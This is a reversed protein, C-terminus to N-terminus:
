QQAVALSAYYGVFQVVSVMSNLADSVYSCSNGAELYINTIQRQDGDSDGETKNNICHAYLNAINSLEENMIAAMKSLSIGTRSADRKVEKNTLLLCEAGKHFLNICEATMHALTKIAVTHVELSSCNSEDNSSQECNKIWSHADNYVEEIRQEMGELNLEKLLEALVKMFDQDNGPPMESSFSEKVKEMSDYLLEESRTKLLSQTKFESENSLIELAELHAHGQFEELLNNYNFHEPEPKSTILETQTEKPQVEPNKERAERLLDSLKPQTNNITIGAEQETIVSATKKGIKEFTEM